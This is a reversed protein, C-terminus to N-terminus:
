WGIGYYAKDGNDYTGEILLGSESSTRSLANSLDEINKISRKDIATIIYGERIGADHWKGRELDVIKAGGDIELNRKDEDSLNAFTAGEITMHNTAAVIETSGLNNRLIVAITKQRGDRILTVDVKDGPRNLAVKEQLESTKIVKEGNIAIIVDGVKIGAARAGSNERVNIVYVGRLVNLGEAKALDATVDRINIGLLARQVVGFEMLDTVVKHTLNVPVAFSYGAYTGTPTAIATNIGILEGKLNVLAGGSNGPNVAADTQIFSEISLDNDGRRRLININRGKASVIGATVTSRFEFPNGIALVWEGVQTQDSNGFKVIPLKEADIKLLALDTTPDTGVIKAAYTSNDNLLVEIETANEVVHNNTVIYGEASIIVGSGTGVSPRSQGQRGREGFFERFYDDFANSRNTASADFTSRIHVVGPTAVKAAYIFNMGAPVISKTTDFLYNNSLRVPNNQPQIVQLPVQAPQILIYGGIAIMGGFISAFLIGTFFQRKNMKSNKTKNNKRIHVM